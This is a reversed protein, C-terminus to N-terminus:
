RVQLSFRGLNLDAGAVDEGRGIAEKIPRKDIAVTKLAGATENPFQDVLRYWFELPMEVVATKFRVPVAAEDIIEVSAPNSRASMTTTKGTLKPFKGKVDVGQAMIYNLVYEQVREVTNDLIQRRGRIRAEERKCFDSEARCQFIFQAVRERKEQTAALSRALELGFAEKQEEPVAGETELLSALYDEAEYLTLSKPQEREMVEIPM